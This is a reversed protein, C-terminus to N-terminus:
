KKGPSARVNRKYAAQAVPSGEIARWFAADFEPDPAPTQVGEIADPRDSSIAPLARQFLKDIEKMRSLDADPEGYAARLADSRRLRLTIM